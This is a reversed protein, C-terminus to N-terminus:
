KPWVAKLAAQLSEVPKGNAYWVGNIRKVTNM